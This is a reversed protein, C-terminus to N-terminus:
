RNELFIEVVHNYDALLEEAEMYWDKQIYPARDDLNDGPRNNFQYRAIIGVNEDNVEIQEM